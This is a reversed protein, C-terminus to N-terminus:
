DVLDKTYSLSQLMFDSTYRLGGDILSQPLRNHASEAAKLYVSSACRQLGAVDSHGLEQVVPTM